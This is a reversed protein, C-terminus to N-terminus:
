PKTQDILVRNEDLVRAWLVKHSDTNEVRIEEGAKGDEIARAHIMIEV